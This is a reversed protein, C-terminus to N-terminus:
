IVDLASIFHSSHRWGDFTRDTKEQESMQRTSVETPRLSNSFILCIKCYSEWLKMQEIKAKQVSDPATEKWIIAQEQMKIGWSAVSDASFLVLLYM